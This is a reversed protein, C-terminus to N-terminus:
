YCDDVSWFRSSSRILIRWQFTTHNTKGFDGSRFISAQNVIPTRTSIRRTPIPGPSFQSSSKSGLVYPLTFPRILTQTLVRPTSDLRVWSSQLHFDAACRLSQHSYSRQRWFSVVFNAVLEEDYRSIRNASKWLEKFFDVLMLGRKIFIDLAAGGPTAASTSISVQNIRGTTM